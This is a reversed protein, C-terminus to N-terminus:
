PKKVRLCDVEKGFAKTRARVLKIRTGPWAEMRGTGALLAIARANTKNLALLRPTEEFSVSVLEKVANNVVDHGEEISVKTITLTPEKGGPDLDEAALFRAGMANRWMGKIQEGTASM